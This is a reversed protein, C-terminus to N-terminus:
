GRRREEGGEGRKKKKETETCIFYFIVKVGQPRIGSQLCNSVTCTLKKTSKKGAIGRVKMADHKSVAQGM